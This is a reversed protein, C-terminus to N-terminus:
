KSAPVGNLAGWVVADPCKVSFVDFAPTDVPKGDVIKPAVTMKITRDAEVVYTSEMMGTKVTGDDQNVRLECREIQTTRDFKCLGVEDMFPALLAKKDANQLKLGFYRGDAFQLAVKEQCAETVAQANATKERPSSWFGATIPSAELPQQAFGAPANALVLAVACLLRRRRMM